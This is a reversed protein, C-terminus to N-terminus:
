GFRRKTKGYEKVWDLVTKSLGCGGFATRIVFKHFYYAKDNGTNPWFTRDSELLIFGGFIESGIVGIFYELEGYKAKLADKTLQNVDWVPIGRNQLEKGKEILIRILEDIETDEAKRISPNRKMM